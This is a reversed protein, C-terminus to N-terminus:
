PAAPPGFWTTLAVALAPDDLEGAWAVHGDPRVLVAAPAPVEGIVPLAWPGDTTATVLRVRDAWPGLDFRGGGGPETGGEGGGPALDLLLPRARHLLEYVRTEGDAVTLDLDPMRRGVLPHGDGLDYRVDLGSIRGALLRRPGDMALLEAMTERLADHREGPSSLAVMAMTNRIAQAGVPHREAHYTDLLEAPATGRVVEALKWGLNVADQVGVNLGQGGHPPHTHAADGALLVRGRRYDVAQRTADTFRSIWAVDHLGFDTGYIDVLAERLEAETPPAAHDVAAETLVMRIPEDPARRGIAHQGLANRRFGFPPQEAMEGEAIMWSTTPDLGVADIGVARRVTSRGGDCGVLYAARVTTGDSLEVDVGDDDQALGVVSLGWRTPVGLEDVWQGLIREIHRQWLALVHPHRTPFDGLDLPVYAFGPGPATEGASLFREVVGRQDLVELTRAHLGGARSGDIERDHRPEVVVVDVGALALEAALAM